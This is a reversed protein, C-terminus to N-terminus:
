KYVGKQLMDLGVRFRSMFEDHLRAPDDHANFRSLQSKLGITFWKILQFAEEFSVKLNDTKINSFLKLFIDQGMKIFFEMVREQVRFTGEDMLTMILKFYFPYQIYFDFTVEIITIFREFIDSEKLELSNILYDYILNISKSIVFSYLDEKTEFYKFLSGKAIGAKEVIRNTSAGSYGYEAFEGVIADIILEQKEPPLNKFTATM